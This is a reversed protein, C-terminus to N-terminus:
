TVGASPLLGAWISRWHRKEVESMAPWATEIRVQGGNGDRVVYGVPPGAEWTSFARRCHAELAAMDVM